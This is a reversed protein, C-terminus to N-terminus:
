IKIFFKGNMRIKIILCMIATVAYALGCFLKSYLYDGNYNITEMYSALVPGVLAVSFGLGRVTSAAPYLDFGVIALTVPPAIIDLFFYIFHARRNM